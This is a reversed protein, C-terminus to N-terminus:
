WQARKFRQRWKSFISLVNSLYKMPSNGNTRWKHTQLQHHKHAHQCDVIITYATHIYIFPRWITWLLCWIMAIHCAFVLLLVSQYSFTNIAAATAEVVLCVRVYFANFVNVYKFDKKSVGFFYFIHKWSRAANAVSNISDTYGIDM